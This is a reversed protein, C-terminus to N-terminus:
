SVRLFVLLFENIFESFAVGRRPEMKMSVTCSMV